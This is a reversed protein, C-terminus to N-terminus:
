TALWMKEAAPPASVFRFRALRHSTTPRGHKARTLEPGIHHLDGVVVDTSVPTGDGHTEVDGVQTVM